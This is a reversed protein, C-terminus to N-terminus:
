GPEPMPFLGLFREVTARDGEITLTGLARADALSGGWLVRKLTDPRERDDRRSTQAEAPSRSGTTQSRSGFATRASGCTTAARLGARRRPRVAGRLALHGLGGVRRLTAGRRRRARLGAGLSLVLPELELGWDTLEYVRSGGAAPAQAAPRGPASSSACASPSVNPSANPPGPAPGHLAEARAAARSSSCPGASASSTSGRAIACGDGYTRTTAMWPIM